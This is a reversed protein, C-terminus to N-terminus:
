WGMRDPLQLPQGNLRLSADFRRATGPMHHQIDGLLGGENFHLVETKMLKKTTGFLWPIQDVQPISFPNQPLLIQIFNTTKSKGWLFIINYFHLYLLKKHKPPHLTTERKPEEPNPLNYKKKNYSFNLLSPIGFSNQYLKM